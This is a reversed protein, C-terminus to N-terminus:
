EEKPEQQTNQVSLTQAQYNLFAQVAAEAEAETDMGEETIYKWNHDETDDRQIMANLEQTQWDILDEQTAMEESPLNIKIKPLIYPWYQTVGKMMTRRVCGFGLYPPNMKDGYAQFKVPTEDVTVTKEGTIGYVLVAAEPELGDVTIAATGSTFQSTETEEVVNDAYFNNDDATDIEVSVSVGRGLKMAGSYTVTQGTNSYKAVYPKSFGTTVM